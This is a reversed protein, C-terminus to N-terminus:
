AVGGEAKTKFIGNGYNDDMFDAKDALKYHDSGQMKKELLRLLRSLVFTMALYLACAILFPEFYRYYTGTVTKTVFFLETCSIVNLVSTDKINIILNNGIQPLINFLAQPVIVCAMADMHRMGLSQAAELQGGDISQIGGRVTEAMYAGTNVSVVLYSAVTATLNIGFLAQSGYYVVMAQVMMPTGRFIEIYVGLAANILAMLGKKYWHEEPSLQISRITGVIFGIICGIITSILAIELTAAAGKLFSSGYENLFLQIWQWSSREM